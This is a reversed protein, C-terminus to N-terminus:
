NFIEMRILHVISSDFTFTAMRESKLLKKKFILTHWPGHERIKNHTYPILNADARIIYYKCFMVTHSFYNALSRFCLTIDKKYKKESHNM